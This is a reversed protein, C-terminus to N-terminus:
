GYGSTKYHHCRGCVCLPNLGTTKVGLSSGNAWETVGSHCCLHYADCADYQCDDADDADDAYSHAYHILVCYDHNGYEDGVLGVGDDDDNDDVVVVCM